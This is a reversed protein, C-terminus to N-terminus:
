VTKLVASYLWPEWKTETTSSSKPQANNKVRIAIRPSKSFGFAFQANYKNTKDLDMTIVVFKNGGLKTPKSGKTNAGAVWVAHPPYDINYSTTNPNDLKGTITKGLNTISTNIDTIKKNIGNSGSIATNIDTIQKIIGNSSGNITNNILNQQTEDISQVHAMINGLTTEGDPGLDQSISNIFSTVRSELEEEYAAFYASLSQTTALPCVVHGVGGKSTDGVVYQIKNSAISSIGPDVTVFALAYEYLGNTGNSLTPKQPSASATGKVAYINNARVADSKNVGIVIADIRSMNGIPPSEIEVPYIQDNYIWTHQFWGRGTGVNVHLGDGSTVNFANGVNNYVGDSILGDFIAGFQDASYLRDHNYSNYFGYTIAM